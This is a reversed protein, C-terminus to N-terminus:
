GMQPGSLVGTDERVPDILEAQLVKKLKVDIGAAKAQEGTYIRGDALKKIHEADSTIRPQYPNPRIAAAALVGEPAGGSGLATGSGSGTEADSSGAGAGTSM